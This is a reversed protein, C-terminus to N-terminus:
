MEINDTEITIARESGGCADILWRRSLMELISDLKQEVDDIRKEIRAQVAPDDIAIEDEEPGEIPLRM